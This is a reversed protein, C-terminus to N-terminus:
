PRSTVAAPQTCAPRYDKMEAAVEPHADVDPKAVQRRINEINSRAYNSQFLNVIWAPVDGMPDVHVRFVMMTRAGGDIPWMRYGSEHLVGRVRDEQEPVLPDEVSHFDLLLHGSGEEKRITAEVVFDRDSIIAPTTVHRYIIKVLRSPERVVRMGGFNPVWEAHRTTDILVNAVKAIPADIPGAGKFALFDSNPSTGKFTVIADEDGDPEWVIEGPEYRVWDQCETTMMRKPPPEPVPPPPIASSCGLSFLILGLTAFRASCTPCRNM